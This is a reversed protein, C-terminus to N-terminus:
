TDGTGEVRAQSKDEAFASESVVPRELSSDSKVHFSKVVPSPSPRSDSNM